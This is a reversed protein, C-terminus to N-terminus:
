ATTRQDKGWPVFRCSAMARGGPRIHQSPTPTEGYASYLWLATREASSVLEGYGRGSRFYRRELGNYRDLAVRYSLNDAPGFDWNIYIPSRCSRTEHGTRSTRTGPAAFPLARKIFYTKDAWTVTYVAGGWAHARVVSM